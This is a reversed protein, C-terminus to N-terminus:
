FHLRIPIFVFRTLPNVKLETWSLCLHLISSITFAIGVSSDRRKVFLSSFWLFRITFRQVDVQWTLTFLEETISRVKWCFFFYFPKPFPSVMQGAQRGVKVAAVNILTSFHATCFMKAVCSLRHSRLIECWERRNCKIHVLLVLWSIPM